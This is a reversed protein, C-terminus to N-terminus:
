PKLQTAPRENSQQSERLIRQDDWGVPVVISGSFALSAEDEESRVPRGGRVMLANGRLPWLRLLVRGMILSAPIAGYNRSDSSNWPNDGEVWIHGDPVKFGSSLLRRKTRQHHIQDDEHKGYLLTEIRNAGLKSSPKTVIDGPLGMVRKCVTGIRDPHQLVVVDGVSIGTSIQTRFRDWAEESSLKDVPIRTEHWTEEFDDDRELEEKLQRLIQPTNNKANSDCKKSRFDGELLSLKPNSDSRNSKVAKPAEAEEGGKTTMTKEHTNAEQGNQKKLREEETQYLHLLWEREQKIRRKLMQVHEQQLLKASAERKQFTDGGSLGWLRPTLRDILVIEGRPKVTPMMSPGECVTWELGYETFFYVIGLSMALRQFLVGFYSGSSETESAAETGNKAANSSASAFRRQLQTRSVIALCSNNTKRVM